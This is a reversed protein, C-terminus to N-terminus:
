VKNEKLITKYITEKGKWTFKLTLKETDIFLDTIKIKIAKFRYM